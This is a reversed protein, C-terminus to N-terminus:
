RSPPEFPALHRGFPPRVAALPQRFRRLVPGVGPRHCLPNGAALPRYWAVGSSRTSVRFGTGARGFGGAMGVSTGRWARGPNGAGPSPCADSDYVYLAHPLNYASGWLGPGGYPSRILCPIGAQLLRQQALRALPENNFVTLVIQKRRNQRQSSM